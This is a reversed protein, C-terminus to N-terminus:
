IRTILVRWDPGRELFQGTFQGFRDESLFFILPLPHRDFRLILSEGRALKDFAELIARRRGQSRLKSADLERPETGGDSRAGGEHLTKM